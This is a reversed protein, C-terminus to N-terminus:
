LYLLHDRPKINLIVESTPYTCYERINAMKFTQEHNINLILESTPYKLYEIM